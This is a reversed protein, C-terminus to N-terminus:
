AKIIEKEFFGPYGAVEKWEHPSEGPKQTCQRLLSALTSVISKSKGYKPLQIAKPM